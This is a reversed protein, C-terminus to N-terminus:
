VAGRLILASDGFEHHRYGEAAAAANAALLLERDAFARLLEFHSEGPEHLKTLLGDVVTPKTEPGLLYGTETVGPVLAGRDAVRGELARVVTTGVAVVRGGAARTRGVAEVTAAPVDSRERLPLRRDVEGGDISSLGAAHTVPSLGVGARRLALLTAWRLPLGASPSESAWPRAAYPTQFAALPVDGGLYAYRVPEGAGYVGREWGPLRVTALHPGDTVEVEAVLGAGLVVLDGAALLPPLGRRETPTRWTGAGLVGVVWRDGGVRHALRLEVAEGRVTGRLAAPLTAADNLVLRDGARLLAPLDAMRRHVFRRAAPDIVLLRDRGTPGRAAELALISPRTVM